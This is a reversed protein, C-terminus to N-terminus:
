EELGMIRRRIEEESPLKVKYEAVFIGRKLDGLAYHVTEEDKTKCIILGIPPRQGEQWKHEKYWNLYSYMQSVHTHKFQETKIEVLIYCLLGAHFLELDVKDWNGGILVSVERRGIFFDSGLEQLFKELKNLLATKLDEESYKEPLKLFDFNYIDKFVQEPQLAKTIPQIITIEGERKAREYLNSRIQRRLERVSWANQITHQEYFPREEKNDLYILEVFHSWSLQASVTQVIPYVKYFRVTNHLNRKAIDLDSALRAIVREGYDARERHQLEGRVIREGIQWYTQVKLNDVAKYARYKAKELLSKIDQLIETYGELGEEVRKGGEEKKALKQIQIQAM